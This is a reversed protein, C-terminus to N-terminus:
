VRGWLDIPQEPQGQQRRGVNCSLRGFANKMKKFKSKKKPAPEPVPDPLVVEQNPFVTMPESGPLSMGGEEDEMGENHEESVITPMTQWSTNQEHDMDDDDDDDDDSM